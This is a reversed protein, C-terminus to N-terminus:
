EEDSGSCEDLVIGGSMLALIDSDDLEEFDGKEEFSKKIKNPSKKKAEQSTTPTSKANPQKGQTKTNAKAQLISQATKAQNTAQASKAQTTQASKAQTTQASKAQTTQSKAQTTQATKAQALRNFQALKAQAATKQAPTTNTKAQQNVQTKVQTPTVPTKSDQTNNGQTNKVQTPKVQIGENQNSPKSVTKVNAPKAQSPKTQPTNPKSQTSKANNSTKVQSINHAKVTKANPTIPKAKEKVPSEIEDFQEALDINEEEFISKISKTFTTELKDPHQTFKYCPTVFLKSVGCYLDKTNCLKDFDQISKVQANFCRQTDQIRKFSVFSYKKLFARLSVRSPVVSFEIRLTLKNFVNLLRKTVNLGLVNRLTQGADTRFQKAVLKDADTKPPPLSQWVQTMVDQLEVDIMRSMLPNLKYSHHDEPKPRPTSQETIKPPAPPSPGNVERSRIHPDGTPVRRVTTKNQYEVTRYRPPLAATVKNITGTPKKTGPKLDPEPTRRPIKAHIQSPDPAPRKKGKYQVSYKTAAKHFMDAESRIGFRSNFKIILEIYSTDDDEFMEYIKNFVEDKVADEVRKRAEHEVQHMYKQFIRKCIEDVAKERKALNNPSLRKRPDIDWNPERKRYEDSDRSRPRQDHRHDHRDFFERDDRREDHEKRRDHKRLEQAKKAFDVARQYIDQFEDEFQEHKKRYVEERPLLRDPSEEKKYDQHARESRAIFEERDPLKKIDPEHYRRDHSFDDREFKPERHYRDDRRDGHKFRQPSPERRVSGGDRSEHMLDKRVRVPDPEFDPVREKVKVFTNAWVPSKADEEPHSPRSYEDKSQGPWIPPPPADPEPSRRKELAWSRRPSTSPTNRRYRDRIPSRDRRHPSRSARPSFRQEGSRNSMRSIVDRREEENKVVYKERSQSRSQWPSIRTAGPVVPVQPEDMKPRFGGSYMPQNSAKTEPEYAPRVQKLRDPKDSHLNPSYRMRGHSEPSMRRNPSKRRPSRLRRDSPSIRRRTPSIDRGMPGDRRGPHGPSHRRVPSVRRGPSVKGHHPVDMPGIRDDKMTRNPGLRDNSSMKWDKPGMREDNGPMRRDNPGMRDDLPMRRDNPGLRDDNIPMRRDGSAMRRDNSAMRDDNMPIRRDNPGIRDNIPMRRDNPGTRDDKSPMRRDNPGMRDNMPMRRDNPGHDPMRHDPMKGRHDNPPIKHDPMRRGPSINRGPSPRRGPSDRRQLSFHTNQRDRDIIPNKLIGHKPQYKKDDEYPQNSKRFDGPKRQPGQDQWPSPQGHGQPYSGTGVDPGMFNDKKITIPKPQEYNQYRGQDGKPIDVTEINRLAPRSAPPVSGGLFSDQVPARSAQLMLERQNLPRQQQSQGQQFPVNQQPYNYGMQPQNPAWQNGANWPGPGVQQPPAFQDQVAYSPGPGQYAGHPNFAPQVNPPQQNKGVPVVYLANGGCRFGDLCKIVHAGEVEDALGIRVKKTGGKDNVMSDLIFDNIKCEMQLLTRVDHYTAVSPLGHITLMM